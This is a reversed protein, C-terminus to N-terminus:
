APEWRLDLTLPHQPNHEPAPVPLAGPTHGFPAFRTGRRAEAEYSNVPFTEYSLGGPHSVHYTCGGLSYGAAADIVDFVLPSHVPITPHLCAPPQWARYRVGAVFEGPPGTPHLPLRRGNCALVTREALLGRVRVQLREVSSDVYRVTGGVGPEEGLVHWPEIAHRLEIEIGRPAVAGIKPFRFEFHTDFWAREFAYGFRTNEELV